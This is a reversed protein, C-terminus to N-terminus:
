RKRMHRQELTIPPQERQKKIRELREEETEPIETPWFVWDGENAFKRIRGDDDRIVVGGEDEFNEGVGYLIFDGDTKKYILYEGSFPDIPVKKLFDKSVLEDLSEPYEGIDNKYRKLAIITLTAEVDVKTRYSIQAVRGFA